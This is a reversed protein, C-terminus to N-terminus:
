SDALHVGFNSKRCAAVGSGRRRGRREAGWPEAVGLGFVSAKAGELGTPSESIAEGQEEEGDEEATLPNEEERREDVDGPHQKIHPGDREINNGNNFM